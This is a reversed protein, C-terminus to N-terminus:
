ADHSGEGLWMFYMTLLCGIYWWLILVPFGLFLQAPIFPSLITTLILIVISFLTACKSNKTFISM